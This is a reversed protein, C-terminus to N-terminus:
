VFYQLDVATVLCNWSFCIGAWYETTECVKIDLSTCQDDLGTLRATLCDVDAPWYSTKSLNNAEDRLSDIEERKGSLAAQM